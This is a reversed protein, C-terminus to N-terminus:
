KKNNLSKLLQKNLFYLGAITIIILLVFAPWVLGGLSGRFLFLLGWLLFLVLLGVAHLVVAFNNSKSEKPM